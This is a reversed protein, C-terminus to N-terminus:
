RTLLSKATIVIAKLDEEKQIKEQESSANGHIDDNLSDQSRAKKKQDKEKRNRM